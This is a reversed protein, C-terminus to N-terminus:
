GASCRPDNQWRALALLPLAQAPLDYTYFSDPPNVTHLWGDNPWGGEPEQREVLFRAAREIASTPVDPLELLALLVFGTVPAMSPGCGARAPDRYVEAREGFGGDDNQHSLLFQKARDIYFAHMDEGVSSLGLLTTSTEVLYCAMWRGWWAGNDCQQARLFDIARCVAPDDRGVGARGLGWLVRGTIGEAAPDSFEAPPNLLFALAKAPSDLVVPIDALYMPGKPKPPLNWVFAPFGGEPNQMDRLWRVARETSQFIERTAREGQLTGLAALVLGTDDTDQMTDNGRQFPWGGSRAADSKRQNVRPMPRTVQAALLHRQARSLAPGELPEGAAELAM